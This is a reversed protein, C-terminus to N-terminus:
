FTFFYTCRFMESMGISKSCMIGVNVIGEVCM